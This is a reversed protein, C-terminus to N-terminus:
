STKLVLYLRRGQKTGRRRRQEGKLAFAVLSDEKCIIKKGRKYAPLGGRVHPNKLTKSPAYNKIQNVNRRKCKKRRKAVVSGKKRNPQVNAEKKGRRRSLMLEPVYSVRRMLGRPTETRRVGPRRNQVRGVWWAMFRLEERLERVMSKREKEKRM